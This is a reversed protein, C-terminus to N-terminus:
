DGDSRDDFTIFGIHGIKHEPGHRILQVDERFTTLISDFILACVDAIHDAYDASVVVSGKELVSIEIDDGTKEMALVIRLWGRDKDPKEGIDIALGM